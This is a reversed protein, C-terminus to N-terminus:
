GAQGRLLLDWLHVAQATRVRETEHVVVGGDHSSELRRIFMLGGAECLEFQVNGCCCTHRRVRVRATRSTPLDWEIQKHIAGLPALHVGHFELPILM